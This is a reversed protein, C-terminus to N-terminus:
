LCGALLHPKVEGQGMFRSFIKYNGRDRRIRGAIIAPHIHLDQAAEQVEEINNCSRVQLWHEPSILMNQAWEDADKEERSSDALDLNDVFWEHEAGDLHLRVHALEHCLSFWFNDLRDYRTSLGIIPMGDDLMIAAGDVHTKPLHDLRLLVIGNKYLFEKALKPGENMCSFAVLSRMFDDDISGKRYRAAVICTKAVNILQATWALLAYKDFNAGRINTRRRFFAGQLHKERANRLLYQALEEARERAQEVSGRFYPVLWNREIIEKWPFREPSPVDMDPLKAGPERLLIDAPVNLKEHLVRIMSLTLPRKGSLVESVKARSGLLPVLDKPKLDSQEMRFKIADIPDPPAIAQTEHEFREALASVLELEDYEATGPTSDMLEDIRAIAAEYDVATKILRNFM